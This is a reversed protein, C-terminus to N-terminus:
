SRTDRLSNEPLSLGLAAARLVEVVALDTHMAEGILLLLEDCEAYTLKRQIFGHLPLVQLTLCNIGHTQAARRGRREEILLTLGCKKACALTECDAKSLGPISTCLKAALRLENATPSLIKLWGNIIAAEICQADAYGKAKGQVVTELHVSPTIGIIGYLNQLVQLKNLRALVILSSSDIIAKM